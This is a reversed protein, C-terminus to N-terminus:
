SPNSILTFSNPTERKDRLYLCLNESDAMILITIGLGFLHGLVDLLENLDKRHSLKDLFKSVYM